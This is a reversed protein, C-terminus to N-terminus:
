HDFKSMTIQSWGKWQRLADQRKNAWSQAGATRGVTDPPSVEYHYQQLPVTSLSFFTTMTAPLFTYSCRLLSILIKSQLIFCKICNQPDGNFCKIESSALVMAEREVLRSKVREGGGETEPTWGNFCSFFGMLAAPVLVANWNSRGNGWIARM